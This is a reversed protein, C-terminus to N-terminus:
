RSRMVLMACPIHRVVKETVSGYHWRDNGTDGHTTMIILDTQYREAFDVIGEAAQGSVVKRDIPIENHTGTIDNLYALANEQLMGPLHVLETEEPMEIPEVVRLLTLHADFAQTLTIGPALSEEALQSGDLTVAIEQFPRDNLVALVPCPAHRLVKDTVSGMLWRRLGTRGHTTMVILDINESEAADVIVSAPDGEAVYENMPVNLYMNCQRIYGLYHICQQKRFAMTEEFLKMGELGATLPIKSLVPARVLLIEANDYQAIRIAIPLAQNAADSGDLPVLIKKFM